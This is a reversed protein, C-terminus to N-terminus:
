PEAAGKSMAELEVNEAYNTGLRQEEISFPIGPYLRM